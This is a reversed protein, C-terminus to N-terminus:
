QAEDDGGHDARGNRQREADLYGQLMVAAAVQDRKGRREGRRMGGEILAAEATVTTFREDHYSVPIGIASAIEEGLVRSLGAAHGETGDLRIPLGIVIREVDLESCMARLAEIPQGESVDIFGHPTAITGTPDSIAIGLRREGPDLGIVRAM